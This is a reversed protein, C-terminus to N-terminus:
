NIDNSKQFIMVHWSLTPTRVANPHLVVDQTGENHTLSKDSNTARDTITEISNKLEGIM